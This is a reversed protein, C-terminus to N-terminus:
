RGQGKLWDPNMFQGSQNSKMRRLMANRRTRAELDREDYGQQATGSAPGLNPSGQTGYQKTGASYSNFSQQNGQLYRLWNQDM